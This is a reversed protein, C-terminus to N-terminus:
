RMISQTERTVTKVNYQWRKVNRQWWRCGNAHIECIHSCDLLFRAIANVMDDCAITHIYPYDHFSLHDQEAPREGQSRLRVGHGSTFIARACM